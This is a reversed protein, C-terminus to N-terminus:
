KVVGGKKLFKFITFIKDWCEFDVHRLNFGKNALYFMNRHVDKKCKYCFSPNPCSHQCHGDKNYNFCRSERYSDNGGM